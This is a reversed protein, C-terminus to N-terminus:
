DTFVNLESPKSDGEFTTEVAKQFQLRFVPNGQSNRFVEVGHNHHRPSTREVANLCQCIPKGRLYIPM